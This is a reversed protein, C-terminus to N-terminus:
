MGYDSAHTALKFDSLAVTPYLPVFDTVVLFTTHIMPECDNRREAAGVAIAGQFPVAPAQLSRM